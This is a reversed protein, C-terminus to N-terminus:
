ETVTFSTKSTGTGGPTTVTISGTLAGTPVTVTVKTDSNVTFSSATVGGFTIGSTQALGIGTIKVLSGVGGSKPTFSKVLPTVRFVTNSKLTASPTVVTVTGNTAGSPVVATIESASVVTFIAPTGNFSVATTGTLNNGLIIVVSGVPGSNTKTQVFSGLGVSLNFVTGCGSGCSESALGGTDATGYFSGDTAQVLAGVPDAGDACNGGACFTHLTTLEGGPTLKLVTGCGDPCPPNDDSSGATTGYFNGDTAQVLAGTPDRGDICGPQSCFNYLTTLAGASTIEFVTGGSPSGKGGGETIGYFNGDLGQVLGAPGIGDTGDFSHLSTLAGASTIKFITGDGFEGGSNTTGYFSGDTGQVLAAAPQRGDSCKPQACFTYLTALKGTPTIRYITGGDTPLGVFDSGGTTGYFNGDTGETLGSQPFYGDAGSFHHLVTLHKAGPVIKFVTGCGWNDCGTRPTGGYLFTGYFNGDTGQIVPANAIVGCSEACTFYLTTLTGAPTMTFISGGNFQRGGSLTTGYFNGDTGQILAGNPNRGNTEDFQTLTTFTQAPSVMAAAACFALAVCFRKVLRLMGRTSLKM